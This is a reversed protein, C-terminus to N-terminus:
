FKLFTASKAACLPCVEVEEITNFLNGCNKCVSWETAVSADSAQTEDTISAKLLELAESYLKAHTMEAKNAWSFTTEADSCKETVATAIFGPYMETFEYTEGDIAVQLNDVTSSVEIVDAAPLFEQEGLKVLVANHNKIHFGEAESAADFMKAINPYGEEAAKESFAKYKASANTEGTIAAKLNKITEEPKTNTCSVSVVAVALFLVTFRIISRM